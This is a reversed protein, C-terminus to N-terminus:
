MKSNRMGTQTHVSFGRLSLVHAYCSIFLVTIMQIITHKPLHVFSTLQLHTVETKFDLKMLPFCRIRATYFPDGIGKRIVSDRLM